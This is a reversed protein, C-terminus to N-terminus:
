HGRPGEAVAAEPKSLDLLRNCEGLLWEVEMFPEFSIDQWRIRGQGDVFFTGHLPKEEFADYARYSRFVNWEPDSVLPFPYPAGAGPGEGSLMTQKLGEVDDSSVAVIEIGARAYAEQMPAFARLQEVCHTCTNGLFFVIVVNRGRYDELSLEEGTAQALRWAPAAVPEWRFPGLSDLEPREGVDAPTERPLRWDEPLGLEKAIPALNKLPPLDIDSTAALSRLEEM